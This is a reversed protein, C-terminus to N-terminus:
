APPVPWVVNYPFGAQSTLDRLAQRYTGWADQDVPADRVQTWDSESLFDNRRNRVAREALARPKDAVSWLVTWVGDVLEPEQAKVDQTLPEYSPQPAITVTYVGYASLDVGEFGRPFSTDPCMRRLSQLDFPYVKKGDKVYIHSM